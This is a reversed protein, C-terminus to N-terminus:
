RFRRLEFIRQGGGHPSQQSEVSDQEHADNLPIEKAIDQDADSQFEADQESWDSDDRAINSEFPVSGRVTPVRSDVPVPVAVRANSIGSDANRREGMASFVRSNAVVLRRAHQTEMVASSAPITTLVESHPSLGRFSDQVASSLPSQDVIACQRIHIGIKGLCFDTSRTESSAVSWHKLSRWLHQPVVVVAMALRVAKFQSFTGPDTPLRQSEVIDQEHADNRRIEKAGYSGHIRSVTRAIVDRSTQDSLPSKRLHCTSKHRTVGMTRM